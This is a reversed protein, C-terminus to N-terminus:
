FETCFNDKTTFLNESNQYAARRENFPFFHQMCAKKLWMTSNMWRAYAQSILIDLAKSQFLCKTLTFIDQHLFNFLLTTDSHSIFNQIIRAFKVTFYM